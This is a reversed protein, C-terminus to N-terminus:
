TEVKIDRPTLNMGDSKMLALPCYNCVFCNTFFTEPTGFTDKIFNWLRFGSVESRKCAFGLVPRQPCVREPQGIEEEIQLWERVAKIEGFPVGTQVMGFPGPNMGVFLLKKPGQCYKKVYAENGKFAYELPNYVYAVPPKFDLPKLKTNLELQINLFQRSFENSSSTATSFYKSRSKESSTSGTNVRSSKECPTEQANSRKSLKRKLMTFRLNCVKQLIM